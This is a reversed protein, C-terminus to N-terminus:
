RFVSTILYVDQVSLLSHFLKLKWGHYDGVCNCGIGNLDLAKFQFLLVTVSEEKTERWLNCHFMCAFTLRFVNM